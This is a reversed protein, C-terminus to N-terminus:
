MAAEHPGRCLHANSISRRSRNLRSCSDATLENWTSTWVLDERVRQPCIPGSSIAAHPLKFLATDITEECAESLSCSCKLRHILYECLEQSSFVDWVGDCALILMEDDEKVRPIVTVDPEPSVLQEAASQGKVQKYDFDGLASPAGNCLM